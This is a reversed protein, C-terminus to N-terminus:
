ESTLVEFGAIIDMLEETIAKQRQQNYRINLENVRDEINKEAVTMSELRAANESALSESVARYISGFIYERILAELLPRWDMRFTPLNRSSWERQKLEELWGPNVPLLPLIIPEYRAGGKWANYFLVVRELGLRERWDLIRLVLDQVLPTVGEISTPVPLVAEVKYGDRELRTAARLGVALTTQNGGEDQLRQMHKRAYSVIVQNFQGVMGQDSGFVVVGFSAGPEPHAWQIEGAKAQLVVQLGMEVTRNFGALSEVAAQFQRINVSAMAKMTKVVSQLEHASEIKSRLQELTEM